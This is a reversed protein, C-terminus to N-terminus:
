GATRALFAAVLGGLGVLVGIAGYVLTTNDNSAVVQEKRGTQVAQITTVTTKLDDIRRDLEIRASAQGKAAEEILKGFATEQKTIAKDSSEYQRQVAMSASTLAADVAIKTDRAYQEIRLDRETFRDTIGDFKGQHIELKSDYLQSFADYRQRITEIKSETLKDLAALERDLLTPFRVVDEHALQVGREMAAFRENFLESLAGVERLIMQTTASTPDPSATHMEISPPGGANSM